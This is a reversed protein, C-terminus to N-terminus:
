TLCFRVITRNQYGTLNRPEVIQANIFLELNELKANWLFQSCLDAVIALATARTITWMDAGFATLAIIPTGMALLKLEM